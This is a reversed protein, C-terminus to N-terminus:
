SDNAYCLFYKRVTKNLDNISFQESADTIDIIDGNKMLININSKTISYTNNSVTSSFIFFRAEENSCNHKKCFKYILNNIEENIIQKKTIKIKLLNRDLIRKSINSLVFDESYRWYKLCTIIDSDDLEAFSNLLKANKKFDEKTFNNKLFIELLPTAFINHNNIILLKLCLFFLSVLLFILQM